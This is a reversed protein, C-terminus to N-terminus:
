ARADADVFREKTAVRMTSLMRQKGGGSVWVQSVGRWALEVYKREAGRAELPAHGEWRVQAEHDRHAAHDGFLRRGGLHHTPSYVVVM